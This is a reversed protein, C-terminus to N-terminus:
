VTGGIVKMYNSDLKSLEVAEFRPLQSTDIVENTFCGHLKKLKIYQFKIAVM